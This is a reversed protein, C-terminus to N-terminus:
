IIQDTNRVHRHCQETSTPRDVDLHPSAFAARLNEKGNGQRRNNEYTMQAMDTIIEKMKEHPGRQM